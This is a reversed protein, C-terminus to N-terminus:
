IGPVSKFNICSPGMMVGLQQILTQPLHILAAKGDNGFLFSLNNPQKAQMWVIILIKFLRKELRQEMRYLGLALHLSEMLAKLILFRVMSTEMRSLMKIQMELLQRM